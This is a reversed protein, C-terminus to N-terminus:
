KKVVHAIRLLEASLRAGQARAAPLDISIKIRRRDDDTGLGVAVGRGVYGSPGFTLCPQAAAASAVDAIEDDLGPVVVAATVDLDRLRDPFLEGAAIEVVKISKGAVTLGKSSARLSRAMDRAARRSATDGDDRVVGIVVADGSRRALLRDYALVRLVVLAQKDAVDAGARRPLVALLALATITIARTM